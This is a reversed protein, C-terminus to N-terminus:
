KDMDLEQLARAPLERYWTYALPLCLAAATLFVILCGLSTSRYRAYNTSTEFETKSVDALRQLSGAVDGVMEGTSVVAAYDDPFLKSGFIVESLKTGDRMGRGAARLRAQMALNPVARIAIEWARYPSVGAQSLRSLTWCFLNVCENRGRPGYIPVQLGLRHRLMKASDSRYVFWLLMIAVYVGLAIPGVPWRLADGTAQLLLQFQDGEGGAKMNLDWWGLLARCLLWAIPLTLIFRIMLPGVFWHFRRFRHSDDAQEAIKAYAEPLFGGEEGAEAMGVVHPPFLRPYLAMSQSPPVGREAALGIQVLPAGFHNATNRGISQYAQMPSIGAKLQQALQSFVFLREKDKGLRTRIPGTAVPVPAAVPTPAPSAPRPAVTPRSVPVPAPPTYPAPAPPVPSPASTVQGQRLGRSRILRLAETQSDAEIYGDIRRGNEDVASFRFSQM